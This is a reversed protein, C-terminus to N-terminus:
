DSLQSVRLLSKNVTVRFRSYWDTGRSPAVRAVKCILLVALDAGILETDVIALPAGTIKGEKFESGFIVAKCNAAKMSHVLVDQRLNTNILAGVFGAKSLGLWTGVYEPRSEM